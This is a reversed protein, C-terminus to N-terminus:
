AEPAAGFVEQAVAIGRLEHRGLSPFPSGSGRAFAESIVIDRDLKKAIELIRSTANVAPGIATFDLRKRSGINGYAIEGSGLALGFKLPPLSSKKRDQNLSGIRRRADLAAALTSAYPLATGEAAPFIALLADGIFKLVEGGKPEIAGVLADFFDNLTALVSAMPQTESYGTFDRLDAILITATVLEPKGREVAGYYIRTASRRGVYTTLLNISIERLVYREACPSFILAAEELLAIEGESFGESKLTAFSIHATRQVDLFPLPTIYYDTAGMQRLDELFPMDDAPADLKRRYPQGTQDVVQGPSGGYDTGRPMLRTSVEHAIWRFQPGDIEPDLVELGLSSRWLPLGLEVLKECFLSHLEAISRDRTAAKILGEAFEGLLRMVTEPVM